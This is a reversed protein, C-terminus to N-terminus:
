VIKNETAFKFLNTKSTVGLKFFLSERYGDVTSLSVKMIEAIAKYTYDGPGCLLKIFELERPTIEKKMKEVPSEKRNQISKVAQRLLESNYFGFATIDDIAKKMVVATSNKSIYGGVDLDNLQLIIDDNHEMTLVLIPIQIKKSRLWQVTELGNMIPMALDLIILDPEEPLPFTATFEKGNSFEAIIKFDGIMEILAKLGNRVITHDDVLVIKVPSNM